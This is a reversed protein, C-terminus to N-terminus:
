DPTSVVLNTQFEPLESIKINASYAYIKLHKKNIQSGIAICIYMYIFRKESKM